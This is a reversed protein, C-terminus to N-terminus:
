SQEVNKVDNATQCISNVEILQYIEVWANQCTNCVCSVEVQPIESEAIQVGIPRHRSISREGCHLCKLGGEEVYQKETM